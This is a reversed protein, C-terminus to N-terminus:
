RRRRAPAPPGPRDRRAREYLLVDLPRQGEGPRHADRLPPVAQGERDYVQHHRQIAASARRVSGPVAADALSSGRHAIADSSPTSWRGTCGASRARRLPERRHPRLPTRAAFLADRRLLHQRHRGPVAPGHAAAEAQDAPPALCGASARARRVVRRAPRARSPGARSPGRRAPSSCSASPAPISSACSRRRREFTICWTPTSRCRRRRRRGPAAPREDGPPRGPRRRRRARGALYKGRRGVGDIRRGGSGASSSRARPTAGSRACAPSRWGSSGSAPSSARELDRRVTEVEPLEPVAWPPEPRRSPAPGRVTTRRRRSPPEAAEAPDATRGTRRRGRGRRPSWGAWAM